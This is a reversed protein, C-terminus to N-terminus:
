IKLHQQLSLVLGQQFSTSDPGKSTSKFQLLLIIRRALSACDTCQRTDRMFQLGSFTNSCSM